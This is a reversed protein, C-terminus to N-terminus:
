ALPTFSAVSIGAIATFIMGSDLAAIFKKEVGMRRTKTLVKQLRRKRAPSVTLAVEEPLDGQDIMAAVVRMAQDVRPAAILAMPQANAQVSWYQCEM